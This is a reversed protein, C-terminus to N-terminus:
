KRWQLNFKKSLDWHFKNLSAKAMVRARQSTKAMGRLFSGKLFFPKATITINQPM